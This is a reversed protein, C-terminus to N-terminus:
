QAMFIACKPHYGYHHAFGARVIEIGEPVPQVDGKEADAHSNEEKGQGANRHKGAEDALEEQKLRVLSGPNKHSAIIPTRFLTM